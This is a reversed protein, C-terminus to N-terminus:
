SFWFSSNNDSDDSMLEDDNINDINDINDINNNSSNSNRVKIINEAM